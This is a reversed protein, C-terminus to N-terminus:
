EAAAASSLDTMIRRLCRSVQMQSVGVQAGIQSQSREQGFRLALMLRDREPLDSTLQSVTVRDEVLEYGPDPAGTVIEPAPASDGADNSASPADLSLTRMAQSAGLAEVVAETSLELERAVDAATPEQGGASQLRRATNVVLQALEQQGRPVHVAWTHDRYHRRLEGKITPIAFAVFSSGRTADFRGLAKLLGLAAVQQLDDLSEGGRYFRHAIGDSIPMLERVIADRDGPHRHYLAALATEAARQTELPGSRAHRVRSVALSVATATTPQRLPRDPASVTLSPEGQLQTSFTTEV